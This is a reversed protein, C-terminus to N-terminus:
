GASKQIHKGVFRCYTVGLAGGAISAPFAMLVAVPQFSWTPPRTMSLEISHEATVALITLCLLLSGAVGAFREITSVSLAFSCVLGATFPCAVIASIPNLQFLAGVIAASVVALLLHFVSFQGGSKTM